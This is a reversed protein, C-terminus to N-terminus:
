LNGQPEDTLTVIWLVVVLLTVCAWWGCAGPPRRRRGRGRPRPPQRHAARSGWGRGAGLVAGGVRGLRVVGSPPCGPGRACRPSDSAAAASAMPMLSSSSRVARSSPWDMACTASALPTSTCVTISASTASAVSRRSAAMSSSGSRMASSTSRSPRGSRPPGATGATGTPRVASATRAQLRRGVGDADGGVLQAGGEHVTRREGLDRGGVVDVHLRHDVRQDRLGGRVEVLGDRVSPEGLLLGGLAGASRSSRM